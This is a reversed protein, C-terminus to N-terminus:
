RNRRDWFTYGRDNPNPRVDLHIHDKYLGIGRFGIKVSLDKITYIDLMINKISIDAARGHLHESNYSGKIKKNWQVTRYGSIVKLPIGLRDRLMQLKFILEKDVIVTRDDKCEFESLKFDRSLSIDNLDKEVNKKITINM